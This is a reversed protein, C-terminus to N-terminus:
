LSPSRRYRGESHHYLSFFLLSEPSCIFSILASSHVCVPCLLVHDICRFALDRHQTRREIVLVIQALGQVAKDRLFRVKWKLHEDVVIRRGVM